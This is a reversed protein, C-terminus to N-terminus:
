NENLLVGKQTHVTIIGQGKLSWMEQIINQAPIGQPFYGSERVITVLELPTLPSKEKLANKILESITM